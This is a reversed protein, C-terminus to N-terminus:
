KALYAAVEPWRQSAQKLQRLGTQEEKLAEAWLEDDRFRTVADEVLGAITAPDLADLEWSELGYQAVYAEARSDTLKAPNPPPNHEEIQDWNLALREVEIGGSFLELRDIIDRTMDIGSPDHDGLHLIVPTQGLERYRMLRQAAAWMESQSTYGRCAFYPVDLRNCVNSIVGVLADKEVWCNHAVVPVCYTHREEVELNYVEGTYHFSRVSRVPHLSHTRNLRIHNYRKSRKQGKIPLTLNLIKALTVGSKGSITLRFFPLGHDSVVNLTALYGIAILVIQWQRSLQESRSGVTVASRSADLARTGDGAFYWRFVTLQEYPPLAMFWDPLGKGFAGEGFNDRLWQSVAKSFLYVQRTRGAVVDHVSAGLSTAWRRITDLQDRKDAHLTFQVTRRDARICGDALYTGIVALFDDDLPVDHFSKSRPGGNMTVYKFPTSKTLRPVSMLDFRKLDRAKVWTQELFKREAGKYSPRADDYPISLFPHEPTCRIPLLGVIDLELIPGSYLRRFVKEVKCISGDDAIVSDGVGITSIPVFGAPTLV